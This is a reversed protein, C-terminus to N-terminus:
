YIQIERLLLSRARNIAAFCLCLHEDLDTLQQLFNSHTRRLQKVVEQISHRDRGRELGLRIFLKDGEFAAHLRAVLRDITDLDNHLVYTGKAAADLQALRSLERKSMKSPLCVPCLPTAVLAVFAHTAIVVASVVVGVTAAVLCIVSGRTAHQLLHVNSRSKRLRHDLEQRLQSFCSRMDDFNYSGPSPFPNDFQDFQLFIDSARDCQFQSLSHAGNDLDEPLIDLLNNFPAYIQRARHVSQHISLCLLSTSESHNFYTAVLKTLASPRIYSLVDLVSERNPHLVQELLESEELLKVQGVEVKENSHSDHHIKSWIESYSNTQVALTYERTLNVTPSPQFSSVPTEDVSAQSFPPSAHSNTAATSSSPRMCPLM